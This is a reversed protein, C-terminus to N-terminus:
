FIRTYSELIGRHTSGIGEKIHTFEFTKVLRVRRTNQWIFNRFQLKMSRSFHIFPQANSFHSDVKFKANMGMSVIYM